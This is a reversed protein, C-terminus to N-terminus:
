GAAPCSMQGVEIVDTGNGFVLCAGVGLLEQNLDIM